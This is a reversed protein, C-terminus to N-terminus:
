ENRTIAWDECKRYLLLLGEYIKANEKDPSAVLIQETAKSNDENRMTEYSLDTEKGGSINNNWWSWKGLLAGGLAAAEKSGKESAVYVEMDFVDAIVQLINV